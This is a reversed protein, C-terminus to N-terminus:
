ADAHTSKDVLSRGKVRRIGSSLESWNQGERRPALAGRRKQKIENMSRVPKLM